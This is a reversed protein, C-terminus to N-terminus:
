YFSEPPLPFIVEGKREGKLKKRRERERRWDKEM